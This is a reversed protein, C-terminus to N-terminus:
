PDPEVGWVAVKVTLGGTSVPIENFGVDTTPPDKDVPVTFRADAAPAAPNTTLRETSLVAAPLTGAVTVTGALEVVPVNVTVLRGTWVCAVTFTVAATLPAVKEAGSVTVAGVTSLRVIAGAFTEPPFVVVPVRVSLPGAGAPPYTTFIVDFLAWPTGGAVTVTGAPMATVVNVIVVVFTVRRVTTVIV